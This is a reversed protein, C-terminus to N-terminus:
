SRDLADALEQKTMDSRGPIDAAKAREYLEDKTPGHSDAGGSNNVRRELDEPDMSAIRDAAKERLEPFLKEEEDEVHHAIGAQLMEVAAAFGGEDVLDSLEALGARALDHENNAEETEDTGIEETVVPYLFREEVAMHTELSNRLQEVLRNREGGPDTESLRDLIQEVERHEKTLHELIDM